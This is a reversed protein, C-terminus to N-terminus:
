WNVALLCKKDNLFLWLSHIMIIWIKSNAFVLTIVYWTQTPLFINLLGISLEQIMTQGMWQLRKEVVLKDMHLHPVQLHQFQKLEYTFSFKKLVYATIFCFRTM